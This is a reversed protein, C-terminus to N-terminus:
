SGLGDGRTCLCLDVLDKLRWKYTHDVIAGTIDDQCPDCFMRKNLAIILKIDGLLAGWRGSMRDIKGGGSVLWVGGSIDSGTQLMASIISNTGEAWCDAPEAHSNDALDIPTAGRLYRRRGSSVTSTDDSTTAEGSCTTYTRNCSQADSFLGHM